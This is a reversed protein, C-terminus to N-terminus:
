KRRDGTRKTRRLVLSIVLIIAVAGFAYRVVTRSAGGKEVTQREVYKPSPGLSTTPVDTVAHPTASIPHLTQMTPSPCTTPSTVTSESAPSEQTGQEGCLDELGVLPPTATGDGWIWGEIDGDHVERLGAGRRAYCWRGQSVYWYSWYACDTGICHCFCDDAPYDCGQGQIKCIAGGMGKSYDVVIKLGARRLLELGSISEESFTVCRTVIDGDAFQIILGARHLPQGGTDAKVVATGVILLLTAILISALAVRKTQGDM